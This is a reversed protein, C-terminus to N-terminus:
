NNWSYHPLPRGQEVRSVTPQDILNKLGEIRRRVVVKGHDGTKLVNNATELAEISKLIYAISLNFHTKSHEPDRKIAESYFNIASEINGERLHTNALRFWAYHDTPVKETVQKYLTSAELYRGKEYAIDAKKVMNFVTASKVKSSNSACAGLMSIALLFTALKITKYVRNNLGM